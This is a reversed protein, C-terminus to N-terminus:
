VCIFRVVWEGIKTCANWYFTVCNFLDYSALGGRKTFYHQYVLTERMRTCQRGKMSVLKFSDTTINNDNNSGGVYLLFLLKFIGFTYDSDTYRPLVSLVIALHFLVFPCLCRDVLCVYLVICWTVRVGSFDLPSSTHEPLTFLTLLTTIFLSWDQAENM